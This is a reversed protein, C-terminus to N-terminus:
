QAAQSWFSQWFAVARDVAPTREFGEEVIEWLNGDAFTDSPYIRVWDNPLRYLVEFPSGRLIPHSLAQVIRPRLAGNRDRGDDIIVLSPLHTVGAPAQRAGLALLRDRTAPAQDRGMIIRVDFGNAHKYELAQVVYPNAINDSMIYVSARARYIEDIMQKILREQPNFQVRVIGENTYHTPSQHTTSKLPGNYVSLTTSFVGAQMQKFEREFSRAVDESKMRFGLWHHAGGRLPTTFNWVTVEDIVFFTHSMLNYSGPRVMLGLDPGAAGQDRTCTIHEVTQQCGQLLPSLTPDPLYRLAGDGYVVPIGAQELLQFGSDSRHDADSVIRVDVGREHARILARAVREDELHTIAAHIRVTAGAFDAVLDGRIADGRNPGDAEIEFVNLWGEPDSAGESSTLGIALACAVALTGAGIARWRNRTMDHNM